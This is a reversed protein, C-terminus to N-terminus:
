IKICRVSMGVQINNNYFYMQGSANGMVAKISYSADAMDTTAMYSTTGAGLFLGTSAARYGGPIVTFGSVNTAGTNPATWHVTGEEKLKGAAVLTGGLYAVLIDWDAKSPIKYGTPALKGSMVAPYNYLKGSVDSILPDNNFDCYAGSTLAEWTANDVVNPIAMGDNYKSTKLNELLWTQSGIVIEHYENGETDHIIPFPNHVGGSSMVVQGSIQITVDATIADKVTISLPLETVLGIFELTTLINDPLQIAYNQTLQSEFDNKMKEYYSRVFNMGLTITGAERMGAIFEKYGGQSSLSTVDITERKMGPGKVSTIEAIANWTGAGAPDWVFFQTGVGSVAETM